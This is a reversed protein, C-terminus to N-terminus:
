GLSRPRYTRRRRQGSPLAAQVRQYSKRIQDEGAAAPHNLRTLEESVMAFVDDWKVGQDLTERVELYRWSDKAAQHWFLKEGPGLFWKANRYLIDALEQNTPVLAMAHEIQELQEYITPVSAEIKVKTVKGRSM